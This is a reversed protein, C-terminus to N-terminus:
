LAKYPLKPEAGYSRLYHLFNVRGESLTTQERTAAEAMDDLKLQARM